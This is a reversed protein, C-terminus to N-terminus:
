AISAPRVPALRRAASDAPEVVAEVAKVAALRHLRAVQRREVVDAAEAVVAAV